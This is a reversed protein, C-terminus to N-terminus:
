AGVATSAHKEFEARVAAGMGITPLHLMGFITTALVVFRETVWVYRFRSWSMKVVNGDVSLTFGDDDTSIHGEKSKLSAVAGALMRPLLFFSTAQYGVTFVVAAGMFGVFWHGGVFRYLVLTSAIGSVISVLTFLGFKTLYRRWRFFRAAERATDVSFNLVSEPL